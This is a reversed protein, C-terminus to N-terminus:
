GTVEIGGSFASTNHAPDTATATLFQGLGVPSDFTFTFSANGDADTTVQFSGLFVEGSGSPDNISNAFIEVTFTTNPTGSLTGKVTTSTGDSTASTLVPAAQNHNAGNLLEIGLNANAFIANGQIANGTAEDVLVGDHGNFAITNGAGAAEGAVTNNNSRSIQIGDRGNGIAQTGTVDTGIFNGQVINGGNSDLAAIFVGHRANGSILNGAGTETGGVQNNAGSWVYIGDVGNGLAQTGSVDTGIRNGQIVNGNRFVEVGWFRNGSILNGAGAATGGILNNSGNAIYVGEGNQLSQTGTVDTGIYNGQVRDSTGGVKVGEYLSGSIINRAEATTGGVVNATGGVEM